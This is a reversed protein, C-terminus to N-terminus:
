TGKLLALLSGLLGGKTADKSAKIDIKWGRTKPDRVVHIDFKTSLVLVIAAGVLATGIVKTDRMGLAADVGAAFAPDVALEKLLVKAQAGSALRAGTALLEAEPTSAFAAISKLAETLEDDTKLVNGLPDAGQTVGALVVELAKTAREDSLADIEQETAM